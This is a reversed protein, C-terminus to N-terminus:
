DKEQINNIKMLMRKAPGYTPIRKLVENAIEKAEQIKGEEFVLNAFEICVKENLSNLEYAKYLYSRSEEYRGVTSLVQYIREYTKYHSKMQLSIMFNELAKEMNGENSYDLGVGYYYVDDKEIM